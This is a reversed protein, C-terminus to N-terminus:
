RKELLEAPCTVYTGTDLWVRYTTGAFDTVIGVAGTSKLRVPDGPQLPESRLDAIMTEIRDVAARAARAEAAIAALLRPDIDRTHGDTGM